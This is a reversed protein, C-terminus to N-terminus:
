VLKQIKDVEFLKLALNYLNELQSTEEAIDLGNKKYTIKGNKSVSKIGSNHSKTKLDGYGLYYAELYLKNWKDAFLGNNTNVRCIQNIKARMTKAPVSQSREIVIQNKYDLEAKLKKIENTALELVDLTTLKKEQKPTFYNDLVENAFIEFDVSIWEAFKLAIKKNAWTGNKNGGNVVVLNERDPNKEEFANLFRQTAPLRKWDFVDKDFYKAIKTLNVLNKEKDIEFLSIDFNPEEIDSIDFIGKDANTPSYM